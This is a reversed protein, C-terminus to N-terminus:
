EWLTIMGAKNSAALQKKKSEDRYTRSPTWAVSTVSSSNPKVSPRATMGVYAGHKYVYDKVLSKEWAREIGKEMDYTERLEGSRVLDWVYVKGNLSGSALFRGDGDVAFGAPPATGPIQFKNAGCTHLLSLSTGNFVRLKNDRCATIICGMGFPVYKNSTTDSNSRDEGEVALRNITTAVSTTPLLHPGKIEGKIQYTKRADWIKISGDQHASYIANSGMETDLFIDNCMSSCKIQKTCTASRLDWVRITRDASGTYLTQEDLSLQAGFIKARHGQLTRVLKEREVSWLRCSRDSYAGIVYRSRFHVRYIESDTYSGSNNSSHSDVSFIGCKHGDTSWLKICKGGSVFMTGADNYDVCNIISKHAYITHAPSAAKPLLQMLSMESIVDPRRGKDNNNQKDKTNDLTNTSIPAVLNHQRMGNEDRLADDSSTQGMSATSSGSAGEETGINHQSVFVNSITALFGSAATRKKKTEELLKTMQDVQQVMKAKETILRKVLSRNEKKQGELSTETDKLTKRCRLLEDRLTRVENERVILKNETATSRKQEIGLEMTINELKNEADQLRLLMSYKRSQSNKDESRNSRRRRRRYRQDRMVKEGKNKIKMPIPTGSSAKNKDATNSSNKAGEEEVDTDDSDSYVENQSIEYRLDENQIQLRKCERRLREHINFIETFPQKEKVDREELLRAINKLWMIFHTNEQTSGEAKTTHNQQSSIVVM